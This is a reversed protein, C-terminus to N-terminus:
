RQLRGSSKLGNGAIGACSGVPRGSLAGGCPSSLGHAAHAVSPQDTTGGLGCFIVASARSPVGDNPGGLLCGGVGGAAGVGIDFENRASSSCAGSALPSDDHPPCEACPELLTLVGGVGGGLSGLPAPGCTWGSMHVGYRASFHSMRALAGPSHEDSCHTLSANPCTSKLM